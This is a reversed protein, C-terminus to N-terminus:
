NREYFIRRITLRLTVEITKLSVSGSTKDM